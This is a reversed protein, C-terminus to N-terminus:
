KPLFGVTMRPHEPSKPRDMFGPGEMGEWENIVTKRIEWETPGSCLNHPSISGPLIAAMQYLPVRLLTVRGRPENILFELGAM